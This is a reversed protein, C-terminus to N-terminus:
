HDAIPPLRVFRQQAKCANEWTEKSNGGKRPQAMTSKSHLIEIQEKAKVKTDAGIIRSQYEALEQYTFEELYKVITSDEKIKLKGLHKALGDWKRLKEALTPPMIQVVMDFRGRRTIADDFLDIYNTALLLLVRRSSNIQALQPLMATTFFRSLADSHDDTRTRFLEDFEDLFVVTSDIESIREFLRIAEAHIRDWGDSLIHSPNISLLPWGLYSAIFEAMQTKSTGPPGFMLMSAPTNKPLALGNRVQNSHKAVPSVLHDFVAKRLSMGNTTGDNLEADLFKDPPAFHKPDTAAIRPVRYDVRVYEFNTRRLESAIIRELLHMFHFASATSWSEPGQLQPHHGSAWGVGSGEFEYRTSELCRFAKELQAIHDVVSDRLEERELLQTLMEFEYCYANGLEPYHFLPSSRPWTGDKLQMEFLRTVGAKLMSKQFPTLASMPMLSSYCILAYGLSYPDETKTGAAGLALQHEIQGFCWRIAATKGRAKLANAKVLARVALQTLFSTPPYGPMGVGGKQDVLADNLLGTGQKLRVKHKLLEAQPNNAGSALACAAEVLFAVTFPNNDSLKSSKWGPVNLLKKILDPTFTDWPGGKWLGRAMLSLICTSTSAKSYDAKTTDAFKHRFGGTKPLHYHLLSEKQRSLLANIDRRLSRLKEFDM